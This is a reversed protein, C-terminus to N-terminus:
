TRRSHASPSTPAGPYMQASPSVHTRPTCARRGGEAPRPRHAQERERVRASQHCLRAVDGDPIAAAGPDVPWRGGTIAESASTSPACWFSSRSRRYTTPPLSPKVVGAVVRLFPHACPSFPLSPAMPRGERVRVFRQLQFRLMAGASPRGLHRWPAGLATTLPRPTSFLLLVHM